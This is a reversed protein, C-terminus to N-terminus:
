ELTFRNEAIRYLKRWLVHNLVLVYICMVTIGLAIRPFDGQDSFETIYRGLGQATLRQGDWEVVEAVISANWAGGAATMAGTVYYPFIAPLILRKWKLWGSVGFNQIALHLEQPLASTGAIVNFLIYWQTGLIMLPMTWININLHYKVILIVVLPYLLNAPFAALFQAIPQCIQAANPRMGIYVGLPVWVLSALVILVMVKVGTILGLWLVWFAEDMTIEAIMFDCLVKMAWLLSLATLTNFAYRGWRALKPSPLSTKYAPKTRTFRPPNIFFEILPQYIVSLYKFLRTKTLLDYFWSPTSTEGELTDPKFTEAWKLLPRFLLQDYILIVLFMAFIAYGIAKSDGQWIAKSIYSGIGPLTITTNAVSIAESAVVYFWGASMSVMTNWLLGPTAFPVEIHWFRQWPSLHYIAAAEQWEKPISRLSQYFSFAMNWVQSTFIAFIAACEPGLRSDPFLAIFGVVTISLLGLIPISQLIDLAPLIIKAAADSKAALTSITLTFIFSVMLALLMRIVTSVAYGPLHSPDLSISIVTGFQYPVDMDMAGWALSAIVAMVIMLVLGDWINPLLRKEIHPLKYHNRLM